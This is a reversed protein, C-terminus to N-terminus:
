SLVNFYMNQVFSFPGKKLGRNEEMRVAHQLVTTDRVGAGSHRKAGTTTAIRRTIYSNM